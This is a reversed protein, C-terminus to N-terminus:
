SPINHEIRTLIQEIREIGAPDRLLDAPARGDLLALPTALWHAAKDEDGFVDVAHTIM